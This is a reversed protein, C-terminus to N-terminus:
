RSTAPKSPTNLPLRWLDYREEGAKVVGAFHQNLRSSTVVLAGDPAITPTDPWSIGEDAAVLTMKKTAPNYRVIGNRTVDTTYLQGDARTVIGDTNGGVDGINRVATAVEAAKAKPNRLVSTSVAHAHRGTTVTWYLTRADPSLAIGNIGLV